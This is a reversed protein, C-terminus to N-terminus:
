KSSGILSSEFKIENKPDILRPDQQEYIRGMQNEITIRSLDTSAKEDQFIISNNTFLMISHKNVTSKIVTQPIICNLLIRHETLKFVLIHQVDNADILLNSFYAVGKYPRYLTLPLCM